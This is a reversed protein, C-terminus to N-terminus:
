ILKRLSTMEHLEEPTCNWIMHTYEAYPSEVLGTDENCVERSEKEEYSDEKVWGLECLSMIIRINNILDYGFNTSIGIFVMQKTTHNILFTRSGM